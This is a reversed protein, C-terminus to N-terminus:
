SFQSIWQDVCSGAGPTEQGSYPRINRSSTLALFTRACGVPTDTLLVNQNGFRHFLNELLGLIRGTWTDILDEIEPQDPCTLLYFLLRAREPQRDALREFCGKLAQLGEDLRESDLCIREIDTFFEELSWELLSEFLGHKSNFYHYMTPKTVEAQSVLQAVGVGDYGYMSFLNLATDLLVQRNKM